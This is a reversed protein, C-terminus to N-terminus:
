PPGPTTGGVPPAGTEDSASGPVYRDRLTGPDALGQSLRDAEVRAATVIRGLAQENSSAGDGARWIADWDIVRGDFPRHDSRARVVSEAILGEVFIRCARPIKLETRVPEAATYRPGLSVEVM